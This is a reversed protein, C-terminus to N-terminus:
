PKMNLNDKLMASRCDRFKPVTHCQFQGKLKTKEFKVYFYLMKQM